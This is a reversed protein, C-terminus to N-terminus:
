INTKKHRRSAFATVSGFKLEVTLTLVVLPSTKLEAVGGGPPAAAASGVLAPVVSATVWFEVSAAIEFQVPVGSSKVSVGGTVM